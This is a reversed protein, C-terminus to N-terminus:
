VQRMGRVMATVCLALACAVAIFGSRLTGTAGSLVGILPPGLVVGLFTIAVTGGTAMSAQGAPARRAVEALYVGSWGIASVGYVVLIALVLWGPMTPLLLATALASVGMLAALAVLTRRAGLWRDSVYGWMIRGAVGAFQSVSLMLGAAVIGYALSTTLYTVLYATLSLQAIAFMFSCAALRRLEPHQMVLLIPQAMNGLELPRQPDRDADLAPRVLQAVFACALNAAAVCLLAAQWGWGLMLPVLTGALVGGLPVGTQKLSFVLSMRHPPTTRALLHSSAPTVPGYGLGVLIAGCAVAFPSPISSVALGAACLVACAQSVRIAGFRAVAAGGSVSSLMGAAYIIAVYFGVYTPSVSIAAGLVPAMVPVCIAAMSVLAQITLTVALPRWTDNASACPIPPAVLEDAHQATAASAPANLAQAPQMAFPLMMSRPAEATSDGDRAPHFDLRAALDRAVVQSALGVAQERLDRYTFEIAAGARPSGEDVFAHALDDTRTRAREVVSDVLARESATFAHM